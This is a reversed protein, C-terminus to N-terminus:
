NGRYPVLAQMAFLKTIIEVFTLSETSGLDMIMIVENQLWGQTINNLETLNLDRHGQYQTTWSNRSAFMVNFAVKLKGAMPVLKENDMEKIINSTTDFLYKYCNPNDATESALVCKTFKDNQLEECAKKWNIPNSHKYLQYENIDIDVFEEM